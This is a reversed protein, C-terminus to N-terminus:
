QKGKLYEIAFEAIKAGLACPETYNPHDELLGISILYVTDDRLGVAMTCDGENEGGQEYAVAPYGRVPQLEEFVTLTGRSQAKYLTRLGDAGDELNTGATINGFSDGREDEFIWVCSKSKAARGESFTERVTGPLQEIQEPTAVDCPKTDISSTDLPNEVTPAGFNSSSPAVPAQPPTTPSGNAEGDGCSTVLVLTACALGALTTRHRM